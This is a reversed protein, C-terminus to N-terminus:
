INQKHRKAPSDGAISGANTSDHKKYNTNSNSSGGYLPSEDPFNQSKQAEEMQELTNYHEIMLRENVHGATVNGNFRM